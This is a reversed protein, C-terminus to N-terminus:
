VVAFEYVHEVIGFIVRNELSVYGFVHIEDNRPSLWFFRLLWIQFSDVFFFIRTPGRSEPHNNNGADFYNKEENIFQLLRIGRIRSRSGHSLQKNVVRHLSVLEPPVQRVHEHM